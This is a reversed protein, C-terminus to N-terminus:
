VITNKSLLEEAYKIAKFDEIIIRNAQYIKLKIAKMEFNTYHRKISPDRQGLLHIRIQFDINNILSYSDYTKRATKFPVGLLRKIIKSYKPLNNLEPKITNYLDIIVGELGDINMKNNTKHRYHKFGNRQPQMTQLDKFYLGRTCFSLLYLILAKRENNSKVKNIAEKFQKSTISKIELSSVRQNYANHRTFAKSCYDRKYADNKLIGLHRIYTNISTPSLGEAKWISIAKTINSHAIDDFRITKNLARKYATISYEYLKYTNHKKETEYINLLHEISKQQRKALRNNFDELTIIDARYLQLAEYVKISVEDIKKNFPISLPHSSKVRKRKTDFYKKQISFKLPISLSLGKSRVRIYLSHENMRNASTQLYVGIM